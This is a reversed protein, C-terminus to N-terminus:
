AIPFLQGALYLCSCRKKNNDKLSIVRFITTIAYLIFPIASFVLFSITCDLIYIKQTAPYVACFASIFYWYFLLIVFAVVFFAILKHRADKLIKFIKERNNEEKSLAKIEYINRDTLTLFCLIVEAVYTIIISLSIQLVQYSFYYHVGSIFLKHFSKDAFLFANMAMLTALVFIFKAM